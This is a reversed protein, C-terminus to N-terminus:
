CKEDTTCGRHTREYMVDYWVYSSVNFVQLCRFFLPCKCWACFRLAQVRHFFLAHRGCWACLTLTQMCHFVASIQRVRCLFHISAYLRSFVLPYKGCGACFTSTPICGQFFLPYKDRRTYCLATRYSGVVYGTCLAYMHVPLLCMAGHYLKHREELTNATVRKVVM